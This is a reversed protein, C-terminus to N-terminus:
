HRMSHKARLTLARKESSSAYAAILSVDARKSFQLAHIARSTQEDVAIRQFVTSRGFGSALNTCSDGPSDIRTDNHNDQVIVQRGRNM